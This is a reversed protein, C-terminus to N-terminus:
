EIQEFPIAVQYVTMQIAKLNSASALYALEMKRNWEDEIKVTFEINGNGKVNSEVENDNEKSFVLKTVLLLLIYSYFTLKM